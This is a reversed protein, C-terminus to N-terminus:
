QLYMMKVSAISPSTERMMEGEEERGWNNVSENFVLERELGKVEENWVESEGYEEAIERQARELLAVREKM